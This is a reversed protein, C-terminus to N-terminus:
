NIAKIAYRARNIQEAPIMRAHAVSRRLTTEARRQNHAICEATHSACICDYTTSKIAGIPSKKNEDLERWYREIGTEAPTDQLDWGRQSCLPTPVHSPNIKVTNFFSNDITLRYDV